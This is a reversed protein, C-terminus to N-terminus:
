GKPAGKRSRVIVLALRVYQALLLVVGSAFSAAGATAVAGSGAWIGAALTAVGGALGALSVWALRRPMLGTPESRAAAPGALNLWALFPIVRYYV